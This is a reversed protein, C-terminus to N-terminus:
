EVMEFWAAEVFCVREEAIVINVFVGIKLVEGIRLFNYAVSAELRVIFKNCVSDEWM